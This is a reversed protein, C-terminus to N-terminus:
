DRSDVGDSMDECKTELVQDKRADILSSRHVVAIPDNRTRSPGYLVKDIEVM